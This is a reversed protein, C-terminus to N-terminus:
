SLVRDGQATEIYVIRGGEIPVMRLHKLAYEQISELSFKQEVASRRALGRQEEQDLQAYLEQQQNLAQVRALQTQVGAFLSVAVVASVGYAIATTKWADRARAKKKELSAEPKQPVTSFSKRKKEPRREPQRRAPAASGRDRAAASTFMDYDAQTFPM